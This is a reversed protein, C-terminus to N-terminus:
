VSTMKHADPRQIEYFLEGTRTKRPLVSLRVMKDLPLKYSALIGTVSPEDTRFGIKNHETNYQLEVFITNTTKLQEFDDRFAFCFNGNRTRFVHLLTSSREKRMMHRYLKKSITVSNVRGDLVVYYGRYWLAKVARTINKIKMAFISKYLYVCVKDM